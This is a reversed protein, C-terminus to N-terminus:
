TERRMQLCLKALEYNEAVTEVTGAVTFFFGYSLFLIRCPKKKTRRRTRKSAAPSYREKRSVGKERERNDNKMPPPKQNGKGEQM